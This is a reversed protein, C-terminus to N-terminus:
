VDCLQDVRTLNTRETTKSLNGIHHSMAPPATEATTKKHNSVTPRVALRNLANKGSAAASGFRPGPTDLLCRSLWGRVTAILRSLVDTVDPVARPYWMRNVATWISQALRLCDSETSYNRRPTESTVCNLQIDSNCKKSRPCICTV